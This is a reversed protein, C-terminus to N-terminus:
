DRGLTYEVSIINRKPFFLGKEDAGGEDVGTDQTHQTALARFVGM